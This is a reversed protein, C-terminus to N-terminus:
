KIYYSQQYIDRHPFSVVSINMNRFPVNIDVNRVM